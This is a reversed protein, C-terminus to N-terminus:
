APRIVPQFASRSRKPDIWNTFETNYRLRDKHSAISRSNILTSPTFRKRAMRQLSLRTQSGRGPAEEIPSTAPAARADKGPGVDEPFEAHPQGWSSGGAGATLRFHVRDSHERCIRVDPRILASPFRLM